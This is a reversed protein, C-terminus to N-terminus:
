QENDNQNEATPPEDKVEDANLQEKISDFDIEFLEGTKENKVIILRPVVFYLEPLELDDETKNEIKELYRNYDYSVM